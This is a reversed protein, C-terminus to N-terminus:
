GKITSVKHDILSLATGFHNRLVQDQSSDCGDGNLCAFLEAFTEEAGAKGPQLFYSLSEREWPTLDKQATQIAKLFEPSHSYNGLYQDVAHGFEHRVIGVRRQKNRLPTLDRGLNPQEALEAMVLRKRTRNFMGYVSNWTTHREYGRVQQHNADPVVDTLMRSLVVRYGQRGLANLYNQPITGLASSIETNFSQSVGGRTELWESGPRSVRRAVQTAPAAVTASVPKLYRSVHQSSGEASATEIEHVANNHFADVDILDKKSGSWVEIQHRAIRPSVWVSPAVAPTETETAVAWQDDAMEPAPSCGILAPNITALEISHSEYVRSLEPVQTCFALSVIGLGWTALAVKGFSLRVMFGGGM